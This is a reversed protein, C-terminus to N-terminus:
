SFLCPKRTSTYTVQIDLSTLKDQINGSLLYVGFKDEWKQGKNVTITKNKTSVAEQTLFFM